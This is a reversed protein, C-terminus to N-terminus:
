VNNDEKREIGLKKDLEYKNGIIAEKFVLDARKIEEKLPKSSDLVCYNLPINNRHSIESEGSEFRQLMEECDEDTEAGMCFVVNETGRISKRFDLVTYIVTCQPNYPRTCVAFYNSLARIRYPTKEELFKIRDGIKM